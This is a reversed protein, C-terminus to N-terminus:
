RISADKASEGKYSVSDQRNEAQEKPTAWRCNEKCYNGDNDIRDLSLGEPKEGMDEVFGDFTKWKECYTIGRGGYHSYRKNEPNDCRNKMGNWCWRTPYSYKKIEEIEPNENVSDMIVVRYDADWGDSM